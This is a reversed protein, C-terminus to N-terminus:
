GTRGLGSTLFGVLVLVAVLDPGRLTQRLLNTPIPGLPSDAM